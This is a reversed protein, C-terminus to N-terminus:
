SMGLIPEPYTNIKIINVNCTESYFDQHDVNIIVLSRRRVTICVCRYESVVYGMYCILRLRLRLLLM